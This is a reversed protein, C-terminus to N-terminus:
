VLLGKQRRAQIVRGVYEARRDNADLLKNFWDLLTACDKSTM